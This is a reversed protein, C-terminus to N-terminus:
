LLLASRLILPNLVFWPSKPSFWFRADGLAERNGKSAQLYLLICVEPCRSRSTSCCWGRSHLPSSSTVTPRTQNMWSPQPITHAEMVHNRTSYASNTTFKTMSRGELLKQYESMLPTAKLKKATSASADCRRVM